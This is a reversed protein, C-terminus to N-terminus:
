RPWIITFGPGGTPWALGFGNDLALAKDDASVVESEIVILQRESWQQHQRYDLLQGIAARIAFRVTSADTPKIEAMTARGKGDVYRLDDRFSSPFYVGPVTEKLYDVFRKQLKSHRPSVIAEYERV